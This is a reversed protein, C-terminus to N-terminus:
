WNRRHGVPLPRHPAARGTPLERLTPASLTVSRSSQLLGDVMLQQWLRHNLWEAGLRLDYSAALENSQDHTVPEAGM